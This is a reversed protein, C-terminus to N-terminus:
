FMWYKCPIPRDLKGNAMALWIILCVFKREYVVVVAVVLVTVYRMEVNFFLVHAQAAKQRKKFPEGM